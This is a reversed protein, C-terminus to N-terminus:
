CCFCTPTSCPSGPSPEHFGSPVRSSKSFGDSGLCASKSPPSAPLSQNAQLYGKVGSGTHNGEPNRIAITYIIGRGGQSKPPHTIVSKVTLKVIVQSLCGTTNRSLDAQSPFGVECTPPVTGEPTRSQIFVCRVSFQRCRERNRAPSSIDSSGMSRSGLDWSGLIATGNFTDHSVPTM